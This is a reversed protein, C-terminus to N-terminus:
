LGCMIINEEQQKETQEVKINHLKNHTNGTSIESLCFFSVFKGNKCVLVTKLNKNHQNCFIYSM